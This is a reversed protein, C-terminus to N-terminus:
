PVVMTVVIPVVIQVVSGYTSEPVVMTVEMPGYTRGNHSCNTSQWIKSM